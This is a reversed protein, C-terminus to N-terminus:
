KMGQITRKGDTLCLRYAKAYGDDERRDPYTTVIVRDILLVPQVPCVQTCLMEAICPKLVLRSPLKAYYDDYQQSTYTDDHHIGCQSLNIDLRREGRQSIM